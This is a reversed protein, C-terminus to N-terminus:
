AVAQAAREFWAADALAQPRYTALQDVFQTWTYRKVDARKTLGNAKRIRQSAKRASTGRSFAPACRAAVDQPVGSAILLSKATGLASGRRVRRARAVAATQPARDRLTARAQRRDSKRRRASLTLAHRQVGAVRDYCAGAHGFTGVRVAVDCVYAQGDAAWTGSADALWHPRHTRDFEEALAEAHDAEVMADTITFMQVRDAEIALADAHAERVEAALRTLCKKCTVPADVAAIDGSGSANYVCKTWTGNSTFVGMHVAKGKGIKAPSRKISM